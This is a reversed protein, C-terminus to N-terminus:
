EGGDTQHHGSPHENSPTPSNPPNRENTNVPIKQELEKVIKQWKNARGNEGLEGYLEILTISQAKDNANYESLGTKSWDCPSVMIPIIKISDSVEEYRKIIAPIETNMVYATGLTKISLLLIFIDCQELEKKLRARWKEGLDMERDDFVIFKGENIGPTLHDRLELRYVDDFKSYAIFIKLPADFSDGGYLRFDYKPYLVGNAYVFPSKKVKGESLTSVVAEYPIYDGFRTKISIEPKFELVKNYVYQFVKQFNRDNVYASVNRSISLQPFKETFDKEGPYKLEVLLYAKNDSDGKQHLVVKNKWLLYEKQKADLILEEKFEKILMLIINSHFFGRFEFVCDPSEFSGILLEETRTQIGPLYTPAVWKEYEIGQVSFIINKEELYAIIQKLHSKVEENSNINTLEFYGNLKQFLNKSLVYEHIWDSFKELKNIFFSEVLPNRSEFYYGFNHSNVRKLAAKLASVSTYNKKVFPKEYLEEVELVVELQNELWSILEKDSYLIPRSTAHTYIKNYLWDKVDSAEQFFDFKEFEGVSVGSTQEIELENLRQNFSKKRINQVFELDSEGLYIKPRKEVNGIKLGDSYYLEGEHTLHSLFDSVEKKSELQLIKNRRLSGIWYNIPYMVEKRGEVDKLDFKYASDITFDITDGTFGYVLINLANHTIFPMHTAHYYDQGGFDFGQVYIDLERIRFYKTFIKVGHTSEERLEAAKVEGGEKSLLIRRLTSKGVTTNGLFILKTRILAKEGGKEFFQFLYNNLSERLEQDTNRLTETLSDDIKINTDIQFISLSKFAPPWQIKHIPNESAFLFELNQLGNTLNLNEINNNAVNLYRLSNFDIKESNFDKISGSSCDINLLSHFEGYFRVFKLNPCNSLFVSKLNNLSLVEIEQLRLNESLNLFELNTFNISELHIQELQTRCIYILRFRSFDFKFNNLLTIWSTANFKESDSIHLGFDKGDWYYRLDPEILKSSTGDDAFEVKGLSIKLNDLSVNDRKFGFKELYELNEM